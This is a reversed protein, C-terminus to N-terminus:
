EELVEVEQNNVSTLVQDALNIDVNKADCTITDGLFKWYKAIRIECQLWLSSRDVFACRVLM